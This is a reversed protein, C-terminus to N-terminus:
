RSLKRALNGDYRGSYNEKLHRMIDGIKAGGNKLGSIIGSLEDESLQSPLYSELLIMESRAPSCSGGCCSMGAISCVDNTMKRLVSYVADDNPDKSKRELEGIVTSLVSVKFSDREKRASNLDSKLKEFLSM